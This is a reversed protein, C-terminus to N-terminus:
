CFRALWGGIFLECEIASTSGGGFFFFFFLYRVRFGLGGGFFFCM